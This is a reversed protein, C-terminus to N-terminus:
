SKTRDVRDDDVAVAADGGISSAPSEAPAVRASLRRSRRLLSGADEEVEVLGVADGCDEDGAWLM